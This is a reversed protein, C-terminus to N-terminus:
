QDTNYDEVAKLELEDEIVQAVEEPSMYLKRIKDQYAEPLDSSNLIFNKTAILYKGTNRSIAYLDAQREAKIKYKTSLSYAIGFWTLQLGNRSEYDKIHGLEHVLWGLLVDHPLKHLPTPVENVMIAPTMSINYRRRSKACLVSSFDPQAEMLALTIRDGYEFNIPLNKFEPYYSLAELVTTEISDPYYKNGFYAQLSDKPNQKALTTCWGLVVILSFVYKNM